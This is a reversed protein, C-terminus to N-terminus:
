IGLKGKANGHLFITPNSPRELLLIGNRTPNTKKSVTPDAPKKAKGMNTYFTHQSTNAHRQSWHDLFSRQADFLCNDLLCLWRISLFCHVNKLGKHVQLCHERIGLETASLSMCDPAGCFWLAAKKGVTIGESNTLTLSRRPSTLRTRCVRAHYDSASQTCFKENCNMFVCPISVHTSGSLSMCGCALAPGDMIVQGTEELIGQRNEQTIGPNTELTIKHDTKQTIDLPTEGKNDVAPIWEEDQDDFGEYSSDSEEDSTLNDHRQVHKILVSKSCTVFRCQPQSCSYSNQHQKGLNNGCILCHFDAPDLQPLDPNQSLHLRVYHSRMGNYSHRTTFSCVPCHYVDGKRLPKSRILKPKKSEDENSRETTELELRSRKVLPKSSTTSSRNKPHASIKRHGNLVMESCSSFNCGRYGCTYKTKHLVGTIDGCYDCHKHRISIHWDLEVQADHSTSSWAEDENCHPCVAM